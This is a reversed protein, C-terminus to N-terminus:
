ITGSEFAWKSRLKVERLWSSVALKNHLLSPPHLNSQLSFQWTTWQEDNSSCQHIGWPRWLNMCRLRSKGTESSRDTLSLLTPIGAQTSSRFLFRHIEFNNAFIGGVTRQVTNKAVEGAGLPLFEQGEGQVQASGTVQNSWYSAAFMIGACMQPQAKWSNQEWRTTAWTGHFSTGMLSKLASTFSVAKLQQQWAGSIHLLSDQPVKGGSVRWGWGVWRFYYAM